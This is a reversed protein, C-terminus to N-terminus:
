ADGGEGGLRPAGQSVIVPKAYDIPTPTRQEVLPVFEGAYTTRHRISDIDPWYVFGSEDLECLRPLSTPEAYFNFPSLQM